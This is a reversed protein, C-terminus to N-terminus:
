VDELDNSEHKPFIEKVNIKNVTELMHSLNEQMRKLQLTNEEMLIKNSNINLEKLTHSLSKGLLLSTAVEVKKLVSEHILKVKNGGMHGKFFRETEEEDFCPGKSKKLYYLAYTMIRIDKQTLPKRKPNSNRIVSLSIFAMAKLKDISLTMSEAYMAEDAKPYIPLSHKEAEDGGGGGLRLSKFRTKWFNYYFASQDKIHTRVSYVTSYNSYFEQAKSYYIIILAAFICNFLQVALAYLVYFVYGFGLKPEVLMKLEEGEFPKFNLLILFEVTNFYGEFRYSHDVFLLFGFFAFAVIVIANYLFLACLPLFSTKLTREVIKFITIFRFLGWLKITTVAILITCLVTFLSELELLSFYNVFEKPDIGELSALLRGIESERRYFMCVCGLSLIILAIDVLHWLDKFYWVGTKKIRMATRTSFILVLIIFLGFLIPVAIINENSMLLMKSTEVKVEKKLYGLASKEITYQVANFINFNANYLFFEIFISRTRSDLWGTDKLYELNILSNKMGRGLFAVYGGGPYIGLKGIYTSSGTDNSTSFRWVNKMRGEKPPPKKESWMEGFSKLSQSTFYDAICSLKLFQMEEPIECSDDKSRHQRLRVVGLVKNTYDVTMGPDKVAYTGYWVKSQTAEILTAEVYEDFTKISVVDTFPFSKSASGDVLKKVHKNSYVSRYDRNAMLVMYMLSTYMVFMILHEILEKIEYKLKETHWLIRLAMGHVPTYLHRLYPRLLYKGYVEYLLTRQNEIDDLMLRFARKLYKNIRNGGYLIKEVCSYIMDIVFIFFFMGIAIETIWLMARIDPIWVSYITIYTLNFTIVLITVLWCVITFILSKKSRQSTYHFPIQVRSSMFLYKIPIFYFATTISASIGNILVSISITYTCTKMITDTANREPVGEIVICWLAISTLISLMLTLRKIYSLTEDTQRLSFNFLKFSPLCKKLLDIIVKISSSHDMTEDNSQSKLYIKPKPYINFTQSIRFHYWIKHQLDLIAVTSCTWSPSSGVGDIWLEIETIKGLNDRTALLFWDEGHRQLIYMLPDPYNLVHPESDGRVGKLRIMVNSTTGAGLRFSTNIIILYGYRDDRVVDSLLYIAQQTYDEEKIAFCISICYVLFILGIIICTGYFLKEELVVPLPIYEGFQKTPINKVSSTITSLSKCKCTISEIDVFEPKCKPLWKDQEEAWKVCTGAYANIKFEFTENRRDENPPTPIVALLRFTDYNYVEKNVYYSREETIIQMHDKFDSLFPRRFTTSVVNLMLESDFDIFNVFFSYGAELAIMYISLQEESADTAARWLNKVQVSTELPSHVMTPLKTLEFTLEFPKHFKNFTKTTETRISFILIDSLIEVENQWWFVNENTACLIMAHIDDSDVLDQSMRIKVRQVQVLAEELEYGTNLGALITYNENRVMDVAKKDTGKMRRILIRGNYNCVDVFNKSVTKYMEKNRVAQAEDKYEDYVETNVNGEEIIYMVTTVEIKAYKAEIASMNPLNGASTCEMLESVTTHVWLDTMAGSKFTDKVLKRYKSALKRCFSTATSVYDPTFAVKTRTLDDMISIAQEIHVTNTMPIKKLDAILKEAISQIKHPDGSGHDRHDAVSKSILTMRDFAAKYDKEALLNDLSEEGKHYLADLEDPGKLGPQTFLKNSAKYEFYIDNGSYDTLHLSVTGIRPVTFLLYEWSSDYQLIQEKVEDVTLTVWFHTESCNGHCKFKFKTELIYGANPDINCDFPVPPMTIFKFSARINKFENLFVTVMYGTDPDKDDRDIELINMASTHSNVLKWDEKGDIIAEDDKPVKYINWTWSHNTPCRYTCFVLLTLDSRGTNCNDVCKIEIGPTEKRVYVLQRTFIMEKWWKTRIGLKILYKMEKRHASGPIVLIPGKEKSTIFGGCSDCDYIWSYEFNKVDHPNKSNFDVCGSANLLLDRGEGIYRQFGGQIMPFPPSVKVTLNCDDKYISLDKKVTYVNLVVRYVGGDLVYKNIFLTAGSPNNHYERARGTKINVLRYDFKYKKDNCRKLEAVIKLNENRYILKSGNKCNTFELTEVCKPTNRLSKTNENTDTLSMECTFLINFILLSLTIFKQFISMSLLCYTM